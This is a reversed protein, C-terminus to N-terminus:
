SNELRGITITDSLHPLLRDLLGSLEASPVDVQLGISDNAESADICFGHEPYDHVLRRAIAKAEDPTYKPLLLRFAYEEAVKLLRSMRTYHVVDIKEFLPRVMGTVFMHVEPLLTKIKMPSRNVLLQMHKDVAEQAFANLRDLSQLEDLASVYGERDEGMVQVDLPGLEASKSMVIEEAGLCLLTAASKAYRPIIAMFGQCQRRLTKALQYAAKADGGPSDILLAVKDKPFAATFHKFSEAVEFGLSDFPIADMPHVQRSQVLLWVQAGLLEEIQNVVAGFEPDIPGSSFISAKLQTTTTSAGNVAASSNDGNQKAPSDTASEAEPRDPTSPSQRRESAKKSLQTGKVKRPNM